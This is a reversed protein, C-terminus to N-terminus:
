IHILSLWIPYITIFCIACMLIVILVDFIIEGTTRQKRWNKTAAAM